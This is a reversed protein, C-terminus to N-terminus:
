VGHVSSASRVGLLLLTPSDVATNEGRPPNEPIVIFPSWPCPAIDVFRVCMVDLSLLWVCFLVDMFLFDLFHAFNM